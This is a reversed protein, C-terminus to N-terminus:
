LWTFLRRIRAMENVPIVMMAIDIRGSMKKLAFLDKTKARLSAELVKNKPRM